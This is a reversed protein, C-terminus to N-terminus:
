ANMQWKLIRLGELRVLEPLIAKYVKCYPSAADTRGKTRVTLLPCGGACVSRWTCSRCETKTEVSSAQFGVEDTAGRVMQLPDEAWVDGVPQSLIMHCRAVTGHPTVALYDRGAGCPYDHACAFNCRDLLGDILRRKPLRTEIVMLAAKIGAIFGAEWGVSVPLAERVFNLNFLLDRDLVFRVTEALSAVNAPRVSISIHPRLGCAIAQDITRQVRRSSPAGNAFPRQGDHDAGLGDLSIMLRIGATRLFELMTSALAVGNSLIVGQLGLGSRKALGVAYTHLSRVMDFHLTPEGGAYKLKVMRYGNRLASRFIADLAARGTVEDMQAASKTVYCYSCRLNCADTLHLWASLTHHQVPRSAREVDNLPRLLGLTALQYAAKMVGDPESDPLFDSAQALPHPQAFGDLLQRASVDLVDIHGLSQLSIAATYADPLASLYLDFARRWAQSSADLLSWADSVRPMDCSLSLDTNVEACACHEEAVDDVISFSPRLPLVASGFGDQLPSSDTNVEACACHDEAAAGAHAFLVRPPHTHANLM